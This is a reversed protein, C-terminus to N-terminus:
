TFGAPWADIQQVGLADDKCDHFCRGAIGIAKLRFALDIACGLL